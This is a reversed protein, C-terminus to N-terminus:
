DYSVFLEAGFTAGVEIEIFLGNKLYIPRTPTFPMSEGQNAALLISDKSAQAGNASDHIRAAAAGGGATLVASVLSIGGSTALQRSTENEGDLNYKNKVTSPRVIM